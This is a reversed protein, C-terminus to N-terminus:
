RGADFGRRRRSRLVHQVHLTERVGGLQRSRPHSALMNCALATVSANWANEEAGTDNRTSSKPPQGLFRDAEFVVLTALATQLQEDLHPWLMWGAMGAARAWMASQWQRGWPKGDLCAGGGSVHSATLYRLLGIAAVRMTQRRDSELKSQPPQFEALFALVMAAYATPRVDNEAHGPLGLYNSQPQAPM